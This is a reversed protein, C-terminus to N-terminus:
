LKQTYNAMWLHFVVDIIIKGIEMLYVVQGVTYKVMKKALQHNFHVHTFFFSSYFGFIKSINKDIKFM